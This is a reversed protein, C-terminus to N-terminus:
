RLMRMSLASMGGIEENLMIRWHGDSYRLPMRMVQMPQDLTFTSFRYLVHALDEGEFVTGLYQRVRIDSPSPSVYAAECWHRFFEPPSMRQLQGITPRGKMIDVRENRASAVNSDGLSLVVMGASQSNNARRMKQLALMAVLEQIERAQFEVLRQSDVLTALHAWDKRALAGFASDAVDTPSPVADVHHPPGARSVPNQAVERRTPAQMRSARSDDWMGTIDPGHTLEFNPLIRWRGDKRVLPLIEPFGPTTAHAVVGQQWQMDRRYLLWATDMMTLGGIITRGRDVIDEVADARGPAYAADLWRVYFEAPSLAALEAITTNGFRRAKTRGVTAIHDAIVVDQPNYGGGVRKGARRQEAVLILMGLQEQRASTLASTDMLDRLVTWDRRAIARFASDVVQEPVQQASTTRANMM